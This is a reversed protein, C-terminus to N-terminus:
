ISRFFIGMDCAEEALSVTPVDAVRFSLKSRLSRPTKKRATAIASEDPVFALVSNAADAFRWTMRGDRRGIELVDKGAFDVLAYLTQIEM